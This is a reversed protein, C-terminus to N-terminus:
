KWNCFFITTKLFLDTQLQKIFAVIAGFFVVLGSILAAAAALLGLAVEVVAAAALLGLAVEVVAAAVLLGLVADVLLGVVAAAVLLGLAVEILLTVTLGLPWDAVAVAVCFILAECAASSEPEGAKLTM